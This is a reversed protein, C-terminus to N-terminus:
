PRAAARSLSGVTAAAFHLPTCKHPQMTPYSDQTTGANNDLGIRM